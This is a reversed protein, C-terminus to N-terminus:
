KGICFSSFIEGLLDDATFEGTIESLAQQAQRLDEALLEGARNQRLQGVGENVYQYARRLANIHRQRAMFQGEATQDYGICTLLHQRLQEIGNDHKASIMLVDHQQWQKPFQRSAQDIKNIIVTVPLVHDRCVTQYIADIDAFDAQDIILLVRDAQAMAQYARKIGEAEVIDETQRLGATDVIHLPVGEITIAEQLVDRTTGPVETVIASDRGSLVNLLSSKGANPRGAIVLTMGERLIQGQRAEYLLAEFSSELVVLQKTLQEDALFDIEEEPFDIAAEVYMRVQILQELLKNIRRSLAGQLSKLALKAAQMSSAHILDSVAEAQALDMKDNLFARESFEGPRALRAGLSVCHDILVQIVVPGGHAHFEVVAEGTFSHPAPFWLTLGQDIAQDQQYLTGYHAYRPTLTDRGTIQLAISESLPGSLRVIGVGGMGPPTAQAVITDAM